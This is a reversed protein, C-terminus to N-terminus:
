GVKEISNFFRTSSMRYKDYWWEIAEDETEAQITVWNFDEEGCRDVEIYEIRYKNM